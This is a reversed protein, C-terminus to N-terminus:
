TKASRMQFPTSTVIGMIISSWTYDQERAQRLVARLAPRDFSEVGRGLAFTLMKEAITAAFENRRAVLVTRLGLPGEVKTGDPLAASADIPQHDEGTTRWRGIADFNELAFGLPDMRAHCSACVPNRRHEEMRERVTTPAAAESNEKLAPV